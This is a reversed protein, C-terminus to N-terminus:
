EELAEQLAAFRAQQEPPLTTVDIGLLPADTEVDADDAPLAEDLIRVASVAADLSGSGSLFVTVAHLAAREIAPLSDPFDESM